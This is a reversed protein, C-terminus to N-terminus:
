PPMASGGNSAIGDEHLCIAAKLRFQPRNKAILEAERSPVAKYRGNYCTHLGPRLPRVAKADDRGDEAQDSAAGRTNQWNVKWVVRLVPFYTNRENSFM